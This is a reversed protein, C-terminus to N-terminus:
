EERLHFVGVIDLIGGGCYRFGISLVMIVFIGNRQFCMDVALCSPNALDNLYSDLNLLHYVYNVSVKRIIQIICEGMTLLCAFNCDFHCLIFSKKREREKIDVDILSHNDVSYHPRSTKAYRQYTRM